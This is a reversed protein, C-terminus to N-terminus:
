GTIPHETQPPDQLKLQQAILNAVYQRDFSGKYVITTKKINNCYYIDHSSYNQCHRFGEKGVAKRHGILPAAYLLKLLKAFYVIWCDCRTVCHNTLHSSM